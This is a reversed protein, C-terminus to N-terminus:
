HSAQIDVDKRVGFVGNVVRVDAACKLSLMGLAHMRRVLGVYDARSACFPSPRVRCRSPVSRILDDPRSYKLALAPPLLDLLRATGAASPLSVRDSVIPLAPVPSSYGQSLDSSRVHGVDDRLSEASGQRCVFRLSVQYLHSLLRSTMSSTRTSSSCVFPPPSVVSLLRSLDFKAENLSHSSFVDLPLSSFSSLLNLSAVCKNAMRTAALSRSFRLRLRRSRSRPPSPLSISPLPFAGPRRPIM